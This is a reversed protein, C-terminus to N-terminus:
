TRGECFVSASLLPSLNTLIAVTRTGEGMGGACDALVGITLLALGAGATMPISPSTGV